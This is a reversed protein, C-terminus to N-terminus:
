LEVENIVRLQLWQHSCPTVCLCTPPAASGKTDPRSDTDSDTHCLTDAENCFLYMFFSLKYNSIIIMIVGKHLGTVYDNVEGRM